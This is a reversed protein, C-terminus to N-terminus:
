HQFRENLSDQVDQLLRRAWGRFWWKDDLVDLLVCYHALLILAQPVRRKVLSAFQGSGQKPFCLISAVSCSRRIPLLSDYLVKLEALVTVCTRREGPQMPHSDLLFDLHILGCPMTGHVGPNTGDVGDVAVEQFGRTLIAAFPGHAVLLWSETLVADAGQVLLILEAMADIPTVSPPVAYAFLTVLWTFIFRENANEATCAPAEQQYLLMAKDAHDVACVRHMLANGPELHAKHLATFALLMHMVYTCSFALNPLATTWIHMAYEHHEGFIDRTYSMYHHVLRLDEQWDSRQEPLSRHVCETLVTYPGPAGGPSRQPRPALLPPISADLSAPINHTGNYDARGVGFAYEHDWNLDKDYRTKGSAVDNIQFWIIRRDIAAQYPSGGGYQHVAAINSAQAEATAIAENFVSAAPDPAAPLAFGQTEHYSLLVAALM